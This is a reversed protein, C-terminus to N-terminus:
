KEGRPIVIPYNTGPVMYDADTVVEITQDAM